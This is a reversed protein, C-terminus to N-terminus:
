GQTGIETENAPLVAGSLFNLATLAFGYPISASIWWKPFPLSGQTTTDRAIQKAVETASIYAIVLCVVVALGSLLRLFVGRAHMPIMEPVLDITIHEGRRAVEPLALFIAVCFFAPVANSPWQQPANLVYRTFVDFTYTFVLAVLLGIAVAAGARTLADLGARTFKLLRM